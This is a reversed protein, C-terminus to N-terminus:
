RFYPGFIIALVWLALGLPLLRIHPVTTGLMDVIFVIFAALMLATTLM